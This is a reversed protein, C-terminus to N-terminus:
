FQEIIYKDQPCQLITSSSMQTLIFDKEGRGETWGERGLFPWVSIFIVGLFFFCRTWNAEWRYQYFAAGAWLCLVSFSVQSFSTFSCSSISACWIKSNRWIGVFYVLFMNVSPSGRGGGMKNEELYHQGYGVCCWENLFCIVSAMFCNLLKLVAWFFSLVIRWLQTNKCM